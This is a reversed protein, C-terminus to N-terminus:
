KRKFTMTTGDVVTKLTNKDVTFTLTKEEGGVKITLKDGSITYPMKVPEGCECKDDGDCEIITVTGGSFSYSGKKQCEDVPIVKGSGDYIASEMVWNGEILEEPTDKGCSVAFVALSMLAMSFFKKMDFKAKIIISAVTRM